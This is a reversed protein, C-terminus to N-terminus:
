GALAECGCRPPAAPRGTLRYGARTCRQDARAALAEDDRADIDLRVLLDTVTLPGKVLPGIPDGEAVDEFIPEVLPLFRPDEEILYIFIATDVGIRGRGLGVEM